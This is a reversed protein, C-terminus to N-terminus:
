SGPEVKLGKVIAPASWSPMTLGSVVRVTGPSIWTASRVIPSDWGTPVRSRVTPSMRAWDDFTPVTIIPSFSPSFSKPEQTSRKPKPLGVPM